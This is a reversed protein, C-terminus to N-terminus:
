SQETLAKHLYASNILVSMLWVQCRANLTLLKLIAPINTAQQNNWFTHYALIFNAARNSRTLKATM